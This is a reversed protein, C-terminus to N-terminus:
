KYKLSAQNFDQSPYMSDNSLNRMIKSLKEVPLHQSVVIDAWFWKWNSQLRGNVLQAAILVVTLSIVLVM